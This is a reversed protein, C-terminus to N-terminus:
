ENRLYKIPYELGAKVAHYGATLLVIFTVLGISLHPIWISRPSRYHFDLVWQDYFIFAGLVGIIASL